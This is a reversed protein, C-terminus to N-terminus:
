KARRHGALASAEGAPRIPKAIEQHFRDRAAANESAARPASKAILRNFEQLAREEADAPKPLHSRKKAPHTKLLADTM